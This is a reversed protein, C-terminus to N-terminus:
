VLSYRLDKLDNKLRRVEEKLRRVEEVLPRLRRVEEELPRLRIDLATNLATNFWAPMVQPINAM